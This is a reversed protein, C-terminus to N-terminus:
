IIVFSRPLEGHFRRAHLLEDGAPIPGGPTRCRRGSSSRRRLILLHDPDAAQRLWALHRSRRFARAHQGSSARQLQLSARSRWSCGGRRHHPWLLQSFPCTPCEAHNNQCIWVLLEVTVAILTCSSHPLSRDRVRFVCTKLFQTRDSNQFDCPGKSDEESTVLMMIEVDRSPFSQRWTSSSFPSRFHFSILFSSTPRKLLCIYQKKFVWYFCM